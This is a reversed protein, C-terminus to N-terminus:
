SVSIQQENEWLGHINCYSIATLTGSQPFVVDAEACPNTIVDGEGHARYEFTMIEVPFKSGEPQFFVKMWAIHHELTNPHAIEDGISVRVKTKEGASVTAPCHIVPVHKEGKWDGSQITTSLKM